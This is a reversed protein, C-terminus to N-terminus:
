RIMNFQLNLFPIDLEIKIKMKKLAERVHVKQKQGETLHKSFYMYSYLQRYNLFFPLKKLWFADIQNEMQYGALFAAMFQEAFEERARLDDEPVTQLAHYLVVAIDYVFWNYECDGFDFLVFEKKHIFFNQHHLDHHIMGYCDRDRPLKEIERVYRNWKANIEDSVNNAETFLRGSNWEKVSNPRYSKSLAHIRGLTKGWKYFMDLHWDAKDSVNVFKGEAKEFAVVWCEEEGDLQLVELIKGSRAPIPVTVYVGAQKLYMIWELEAEISDREYISSEYFKLIFNENYGKYEYVNNSFGGLLDIDSVNIGFRKAGEELLINNITSCGRYNGSM